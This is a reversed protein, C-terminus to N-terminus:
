DRQSFADKSKMVRQVEVDESSEGASEDAQKSHDVPEEDDPIDSWARAAEQAAAEDRQAAEAAEQADERAAAALADDWSSDSEGEGIPALIEGTRKM